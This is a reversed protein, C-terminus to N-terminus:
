INTLLTQKDDCIQDLVKFYIVSACEPISLNNCISFYTQLDILTQNPDSNAVKQFIYQTSMAKVEKVAQDENTLLFHKIILTPKHLQTQHQNNRQTGTHTSLLQDHIHTGETGTRM